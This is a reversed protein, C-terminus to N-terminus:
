INDHTDYEQRTDTLICFYIVDFPKSYWNNKFIVIIVFCMCMIEM